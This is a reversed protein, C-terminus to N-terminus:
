ELFNAVVGLTVYYADRGKATRGYSISLPGVFTTGILAILGAHELDNWRFKNENYWTNGVEYQLGIYWTTAYPSTAPSLRTYWALKGLSFQDGRLEDTNLGSLRSIGGLTFLDFEPMETDLDTGGKLTAHFTHRGLTHAGGVAASLRKYDLNSGLKPDSRFFDIAAKWGHRPLVPLDLMDFGLSAQYGGRAGDFEALSLGTRDSSNIHGYLMGVRIEGVHGLRLGLDFEAERKKVRYEGWKRGEFYWAHINNDLRGTLAVFPVRRLSLPQYLESQLGTHSGAVLDTRLEGGLKNLEFRTWRARISFDSRDDNGGSYSFGFLLTNPAYYRPTAVIVLIQHNGSPKLQFDVLEFVGLDYIDALDEKLRLLDLEEGRRQHIHALIASDNAMSLNTLAIDDIILPNYTRPKHKQLHAAYDEKSLAYQQLRDALLLTAARGPAFTETIRKFQRTSITLDPQILLDALAIMPDVNQRAGVIGQQETIGGMTHLSEEPTDEPLAGVDVAIIIDAGM